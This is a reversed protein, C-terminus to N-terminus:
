QEHGIFQMVPELNDIVQHRVLSHPDHLAYILLNFAQETHVDSLIDVVNRRARQSGNCLINLLEVLVEKESAYKVLENKTEDLARSNAKDLDDLDILLSKLRQIDM